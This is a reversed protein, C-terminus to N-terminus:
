FEFVEESINNIKKRSLNNIADLVSEDDQTNSTQFIEAVIEAFTSDPNKKWYKKLVKLTSDIRATKTLDEPLPMWAVIKECIGFDDDSHELFMCDGEDYFRDIFVDGTNTLFMAKEGDSPMPVHYELWDKDDYDADDDPLFYNWPNTRLMHVGYNYAKRATDVNVLQSNYDFEKLLANPIEDGSTCHFYHAVDKKTM